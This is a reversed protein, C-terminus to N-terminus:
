PWRTSARSSTAQATASAHSRREQSPPETPRSESSLSSASPFRVDAQVPRPREYVARKTGRPQDALRGTGGCPGRPRASARILRRAGRGEVAASPLLGSSVGGGLARGLRRDAREAGGSGTSSATGDGFASASPEGSCAAGASESSSARGRRRTRRAERVVASRRVASGAEGCRSGSTSPRSGALSASEISRGRANRLSRGGGGACPSDVGERRLRDSRGSSTAGFAEVV